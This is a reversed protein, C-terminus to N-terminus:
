WRHALRHAHARRRRHPVADGAAGVRGVPVGPRRVPLRTRSRISPHFSYGDNPRPLYPEGQPTVGLRARIEPLRSELTRTAWPSAPDMATCLRRTGAPGSGPEAAPGSASPLTAKVPPDPRPRRHRASGPVPQGGRHGYRCQRPRDPASCAKHPLCYFATFTDPLVATLDDRVAQDAWPDPQHGSM